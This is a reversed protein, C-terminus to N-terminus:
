NAFFEQLRQVTSKDLQVLDFDFTSKTIEYCGTSAILRVVHQLHDNNKLTTIKHKLDKLEDLYETTVKLDNPTDPQKNNNTSKSSSNSTPSPSPEKKNSKTPPPSASSDREEKEAARKRKKDEKETSKQPKERSNKTHHRDPEPQPKFEVVPEEPKIPPSEIESDSSNDSVPPKEFKTTSKSSTPTQTRVPAPAPAPQPQSKAPKEKKEKEKSKEKKKHKHKREPEVNEHKKVEPPAKVESTSPKPKFNKERSELKSSSEEKTSKKTVPSEINKKTEKKERDKDYNKKKNSKKTSSSTPQQSPQEVVPPPQKPQSSKQYEQPPKSPVPQSSSPPNARSNSSVPSPSAARKASKDKKESRDRDRSKDKKPKEASSQANRDDSKKIKSDKPDVVPSHKHKSKEKDKHSSSSTPPPPLKEEKKNTVVKASSKEIPDGFLETFYSKTKDEPRKPKKIEQSASSSSPKYDKNKYDSSGGSVQCGGKMCKRKFDDSPNNVIFEKVESKFPQLDLDYPFTVKKPDDRNRLYIDITLEFGAYGSEKVVYPPEKIVRKPKPFSDHLNFVVKEVFQSIEISDSPSKVFLEWDHTFGHKSPKAKREASHGIEFHLKISSM